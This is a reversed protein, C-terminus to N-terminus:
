AGRFSRVLSALDSAPMTRAGAATIKISVKKGAILVEDGATLCPVVEPLARALAFYADSFPAVTVVPLSDRHAADTWVTGRQAFL